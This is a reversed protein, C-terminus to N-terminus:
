CKMVVYGLVASIPNDGGIASAFSGTTFLLKDWADCGHKVM